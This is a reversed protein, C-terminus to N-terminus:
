DMFSIVDTVERRPSRPVQCGQAPYGLAVLMIIREAAPIELLAHAAQDIGPTVCWNLCCTGIGQDRLSLIFSMAFLGGDIYPEHRESADFFCREDATLIAVQPVLHGFGRNGNQLALLRRKSEADSVVRIRCPQRNCASPSLQADRAARLLVDKPVAEPKFSRVSRRMRALDSFTARSDPAAQRPGDSLPMPTALGPDRVSVEALLARVDALVVGQPDLREARLRAEYSVLTQVAGLFVPDEGPHGAALWRRCLDVCALAPEAGFMRHAGPMVLGKELKHYQFLLESSLTPREVHGDRWFMWSCTHRVDYAFYRLLWVRKIQQKARWYSSWVRPHQKLSRKLGQKLRAAFPTAQDDATSPHQTM